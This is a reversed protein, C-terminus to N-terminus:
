NTQNVMDLMSLGLVTLVCILLAIKKITPGHKDFNINQRLVKTLLVEIFLGSIFILNIILGIFAIPVLLFFIWGNKFVTIIITLHVISYLIFFLNLYFTGRYWWSVIDTLSYINDRQFIRRISTLM